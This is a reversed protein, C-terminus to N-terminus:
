KEGIEDIAVATPADTIIDAPPEVVITENHVRNGDVRAMGDISIQLMTEQDTLWEWVGRPQDALAHRRPPQTSVVRSAIPERLGRSGSDAAPDASYTRATPTIAPNARHAITGVILVHHKVPPM